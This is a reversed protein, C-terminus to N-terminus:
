NKDIKKSFIKPKSNQYTNIADTSAELNVKSYDVKETLYENLISEYEKNHKKLEYEEKTDAQFFTDKTMEKYFEIQNLALTIKDISKQTIDKKEKLKLKKQTLEHEQKKLEKVGKEELRKRENKNLHSKKIRQKTVCFFGVSYGELIIGPILALKTIVGIGFIGLIVGIMILLSHIAVNSLQENQLQDYSAIIDLKEIIEKLEEENQQKTSKEKELSKSLEEEAYQFM